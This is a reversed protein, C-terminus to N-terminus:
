RPRRTCSYRRRFREATIALLQPTAQLYAETGILNVHGLYASLWPLRGHLDAGQRYWRTLRHVAFTHRLDYPRPGARGRAPKMGAMRFLSSITRWATSIPLDRRNCGVFLRDDQDPGVGIFAERERLYRELEATLTPHFPVWRSRGKSNAVFLTRRRLDLDRIRLRLAEGFRLGTCYLALFLARYLARRFRSGDLRQILGLLCRVQAASLVYARFDSKAPLHPWRPGHAFRKPDQRRLYKWFERVVYLYMAVSVPKRDCGCGLWALIAEDLRWTRRQRTFNALFRDFNRLAFESRTYGYGRARKFSLFATLEAALPGNFIGTM